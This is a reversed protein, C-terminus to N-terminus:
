YKRAPSFTSGGRVSAMADAQSIEQATMTRSLKACYNPRSIGRGRKSAVASGCIRACRIKRGAVSGKVSCSASGRERAQRQGSEAAAFVGARPVYDGRNYAAM